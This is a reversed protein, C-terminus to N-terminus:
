SVAGWIGFAVATALLLAGAAVALRRPLFPVAVLFLPPGVLLPITWPGSVFKAAQYVSLFPWLPKASGAGENPAPGIGAPFVFALTAVVAAAALVSLGILRPFQPSSGEISEAGQLRHRSVLALHAAVLLILGAPVWIVHAAFMRTLTPPGVNAGGKVVDAMGMQSAYAGAIEAGKVAEDDMPLMQGTFAAGMIVGLLAVGALWTAERPKAYSGRAFTRVLHLLITAVLVHASWVHVSRVLWGFTVDKSIRLVSARAEDWAPTYYIALLAGTVAQVLILFIAVSGLTVGFSRPPLPRSLRAILSRWAARHGIREELSV